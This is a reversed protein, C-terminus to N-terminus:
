DMHAILGIVPLKEDTNAPLTATVYSWRDVNVDKMGMVSLKGAIVEAFLEQAETSPYTDTEPDSQTNIAIFETFYALLTNKM